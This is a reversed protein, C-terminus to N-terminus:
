TVARGQTHACANLLSGMKPTSYSAPAAMSTARSEGAMHTGGDLPMCRVPQGSLSDAQKTGHLYSPSLSIRSVCCLPSAQAAYRASPPVDSSPRSGTYQWSSPRAMSAGLSPAVMWCSHLMRQNISTYM